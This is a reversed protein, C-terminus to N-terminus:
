QAEMKRAIVVMGNHIAFHGIRIKSFMHVIYTYIFILWDPLKYRGMNTISKRVLAPILGTEHGYYIKEVKFNNKELLKTLTRRSFYYLHGPLYYRSRKGEVRRIISDMNTTQILLIGDNHLAKYCNHLAKDPDYLHEITEAMTIIDYKGTIKDCVDQRKVDIEESAAQLIAFNSIDIGRSRLGMSKAVAVFGGFSCGVDLISMKEKKVFHLLNEIRRRSEIDRLFKDEREDIYSYKNTGKYYGENYLEQLDDPVNSRFILGCTKCRHIYLLTDFREIVFLTESNDEQCLNCKLVIM